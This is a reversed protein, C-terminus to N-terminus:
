LSESKGGEPVVFSNAPYKAWAPMSVLHTGTSDMSVIQWPGGISHTERKAAELFRMSARDMPGTWNSPENAFETAIKRFIEIPTGAQATLKRKAEFYAETTCKITGDAQAKFLCKVYGLKRASRGVLTFGQIIDAGSVVKRSTEDTEKRLRDLLIDLVPISVRAVERAIVQIDTTKLDAAIKRARELQCEGAGTRGSAAFFTNPAIAFIKQEVDSAVASNDLVMARSDTSFILTDAEKFVAVISM